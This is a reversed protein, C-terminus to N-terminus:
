SGTRAQVPRPNEDETAHMAPQRSRVGREPVSPVFDRLHSGIGTVGLFDRCARAFHALDTFGAAQAMETVSRGGGPAFARLLLVWTRYRRPPIGIDKAFLDRFHQVSLGVLAAVAEVSPLDGVASTWIDLAHRVRRDLRPRQQPLLSSIERQLARLVEPRDFSTTRASIARLVGERFPEEVVAAGASADRLLARAGSREPDFLLALVPGPCSAVHVGDPRTAVVRGSYIMGGAAVTVDSSVGVLLRVAHPAMPRPVLSPTYRIAVDNSVLITAM